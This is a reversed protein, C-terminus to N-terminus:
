EERPQFRIDNDGPYPYLHDRKGLLISEPIGKPFAKCRLGSGDVHRCRNCKGQDLTIYALDTDAFRSKSM